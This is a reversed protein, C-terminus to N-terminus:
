TENEKVRKRTVRLPKDRVKTVGTIDFTEFIPYVSIRDGDSVLYSFDMSLGNVLILDVEDSPIGMSEIVRKVPIQKAFSFTCDVKQMEHPLFDNLEEYYRFIAKHM